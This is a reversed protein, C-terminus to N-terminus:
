SLGPDGAPRMETVQGARAHRAFNESMLENAIALNATTRSSM